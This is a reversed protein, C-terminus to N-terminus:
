VFIRDFYFFFCFFIAALLINIVLSFAINQEFAENQEVEYHFNSFTLGCFRESKPKVEKNPSIVVEIQSLITLLHLYISRLFM